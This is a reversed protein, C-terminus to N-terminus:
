GINELNEDWYYMEGYCILSLWYSPDLYYGMELLLGFKMDYRMQHVFFAVVYM